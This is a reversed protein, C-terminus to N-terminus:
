LSGGIVEIPAGGIQSRVGALELARAQHPTVRITPLGDKNEVWWALYKMADDRIREGEAKTPGKPPKEPASKRM